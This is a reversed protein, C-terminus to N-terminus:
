NPMNFTFIKRGSLEDGLKDEGGGGGEMLCIRWNVTRIGWDVTVRDECGGLILSHGRRTGEDM